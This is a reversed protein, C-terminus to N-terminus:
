KIDSSKGKTTQDEFPIGTSNAYKEANLKAIKYLIDDAEQLTDVIDILSREVGLNRPYSYELHESEKKVSEIFHNRLGRFLVYHGKVKKCLCREFITTVVVNEEGPSNVGIANYFFYDGEKLEGKPGGYLVTKDTQLLQKLKQIPRTSREAVSKTPRGVRKHQLSPRLNPLSVIIEQAEKPGIDLMDLYTNFYEMKKATKPTPFKGNEFQSISSYLSASYEPCKNRCLSVISEFQGIRKDKLHQGLAQATKLENIMKIM